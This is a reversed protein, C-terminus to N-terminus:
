KATNQKSKQHTDLMQKILQKALKQSPKSLQSSQDLQNELQASLKSLDDFGYSGLSGTLRHALDYLQRHNQDKLAQKLRSCKAEFSALYQEQLERLSDTTSSM